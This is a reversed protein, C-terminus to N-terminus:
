HSSLIKKADAIAEASLKVDPLRLKHSGLRMGAVIREYVWAIVQTGARHKRFAIVDPSETLWFDNQEWKERARMLLQFTAIDNCTECIQIGEISGTKQADNDPVDLNEIKEKALLILQRKLEAATKCM